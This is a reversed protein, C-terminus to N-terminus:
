KNPKLLLGVEQAYIEPVTARSEVGSVNYKKNNLVVPSYMFHKNLEKNLLKLGNEELNIVIMKGYSTNIEDLIKYEVPEFTIVIKHLEL